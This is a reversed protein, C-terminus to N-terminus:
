LDNKKKSSRRPLPSSYINQKQWSNQNAVISNIATLGPIMPAM